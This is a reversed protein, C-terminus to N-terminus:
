LKAARADAACRHALAARGPDRRGLGLRRGRGIRRRGGACSVATLRHMAVSNPQASVNENGIAGEVVKRVRQRAMDLAQANAGVGAASAVVRSLKEPNALVARVADRHAQLESIKGACASIGAEVGVLRRIRRAENSRVNNIKITIQRANARYPARV